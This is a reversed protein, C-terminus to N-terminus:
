QQPSRWVEEWLVTTNVLVPPIKTTLGPGHVGKVALNAPAFAFLFPAYSKDSILKGAELYVQERQQPDLTALAQALLQDLEPDQVGSFPSASQFRFGVGVGAAPDWAGATQLMAQWKDTEFEQVLTALQYSEISVEIGAKQWQSQLASMVQEALYNSLTGLTVKLGGLEQVLAKAKALDYTKYGPVEAHHFLGGPATFTQSIPFQGEFLGKSIAQPDTAYYIADRARQDKFPATATNLQIVYPSTPPQVTVTLQPNDQAQKILPTTNMGEYAQAQGALLAQYAPQDGGISKFTLRDLYPKGQEWYDPNRELVLESSLQNSVVKFPGAGVPKLKFQEEGMKQVADPSAVWNVNSVLMTNIFAANPQTLKIVLTHDDPATIPETAALQTRWPPACTCPANINREFNWKVAEANFPTGDTFKVDERLQITITKGDESIDYGTALNGEIKANGGDDDATLQFLTGFIANMQSINAGGTNNTAPDLGSPWAGSFEAALLVTAEGGRQPKGPDETDGATRNASGGGCAALTLALAALLPLLTFRHRTRV